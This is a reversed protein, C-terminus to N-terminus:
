TQNLFLSNYSPLSFIDFHSPPILAQFHNFNSFLIPIKFPVVPREANCNAYPSYMSSPLLTGITSRISFRSHTSSMSSANYSIINQNLVHCLLNLEDGIDGAWLCSHPAGIGLFSSMMHLSNNYGLTNSLQQLCIGEKSSLLNMNRLFIRKKEEDGNAVELLLSSIKNRCEQPELTM